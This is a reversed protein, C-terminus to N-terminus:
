HPQNAVMIFICAGTEGCGLYGVMWLHCTSDNSYVGCRMLRHREAGTNQHRFLLVHISLGKYIRMVRGILRIGSMVTASCFEKQTRRQGPTLSPYWWKGKTIRFCRVFRLIPVEFAYCCVNCAVQKSTHPLIQVTLSSYKAM